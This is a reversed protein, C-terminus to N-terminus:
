LEFPNKTNFFRGSGSHFNGVFSLLEGDDSDDNISQCKINITVKSM